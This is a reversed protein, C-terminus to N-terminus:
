EKEKTKTYFYYVSFAIAGIALTTGVGAGVYGLKTTIPIKIIDKKNKPLIKCPDCFIGRNYIYQYKKIVEEYDLTPKNQKKNVQNHIMITWKVLSEKNELFPDIPYKKFFQSYHKRCIECPLIYQMSKFFDHHNRKQVYSPNEPYNISITHFVFWFSPGWVEPNM